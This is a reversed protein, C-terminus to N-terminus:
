SCAARSSHMSHPGSTRRCTRGVRRARVDRGLRGRRVSGPRGHGPLRPRARQRARGARRAPRAANAEDAQRQSLTVGIARIDHREAALELLSGWGCGIDLLRMGDELRLKRTILELKDEQAGDLRGAADAATTGDPFYACSYTLRADLWLAYFAEGVDYHFRIAAMDRARSHRRGSLRSVRRLPASRPTSARLELSWRIVRRVDSPRLRRIDISEAALVAAMVEGEIEIDGRLYAEAFADGTPPLLLRAVADPGKVVIRARPRATTARETDAGALVIDLADPDAIARRIIAIVARALSMRRHVPGAMSVARVPDTPESRAQPTAAAVDELAPPVPTTTTAGTM